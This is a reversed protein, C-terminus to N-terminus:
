RWRRALARRPRRRCSRCMRPPEAVHPCRPSSAARAGEGGGVRVGGAPLVWAGQVPLLLRVFVESFRKPPVPPPIRADPALRQTMARDIFLAVPRQVDGGLMANAKHSERILRDLRGGYCDATTPIDCYEGPPGGGDDAVVTCLVSM